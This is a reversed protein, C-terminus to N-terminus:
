ALTVESNQKTQISSAQRYNRALQKRNIKSNAMRLIENVPQLIQPLQFLALHQSCWKRLQAPEIMPSSVYQLCVRQGAFKDDIKFVVADSVQPHKLIINEVEAPYVNLGSVIITDDMRSLFHLSGDTTLYGLDQTNVVKTGSKTHVHAVIEQPNQASHSCDIKIHPLPKGQDHALQLNQAISICGAESCGYQQFLNEIRAQIQEFTQQSMTSGSTMAAFLQSNSPWLRLLGQLMVPSSYLLPRQCDQLKKILYKPNISNIILPEKGRNLAAMVGCILGYSHTIPCAIVPTMTEADSFAKCYSEIEIDIDAWSRLICKPEGTTGSSMQIIGAETQESHKSSLEILESLDSYILLGCGAKQAMRIATEKPMDPHIPMASIQQSKLYYCLTLWIFNDEVCVAISKHRNILEVSAYSQKQHEFDQKSYFSDNITFM